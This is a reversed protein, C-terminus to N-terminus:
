SGQQKKYLLTVKGKEYVWVEKIEGKFNKDNLRSLISRRIYRHSAGKNNNIIIYQSQAAGHSIMNAIKRKKFPSVYGEYEYFVGDIRLDPSKGWYRTGKLQGYVEKYEESKPHLKPTLVATKGTKAFETAVTLIAKYDGAKKDISKHALVKGGNKFTKRVFFDKVEEIYEKAAKRIAEALDAAVGKTYPHENINLFEATKGPNNAFVPLPDNGGAPVPTVPKDTNRVSCECGWDSPPMHTNWWPHDIPLVTGVYALHEDRKEKATSELYELNPYLHATAQYRKFDAATRASRVAMNYETRLWNRNYDRDISTGLVSKKFEHFPRLNGEENFLMAAIDRGQHHAKFAAFIATNQKFEAIFAENKKGFEIGAKKFSKDVAKQLATNSIDFLSKNVAGDGRSRYIEELARAFLRDIDIGLEAKDALNIATRAISDIWSLRSKAGSRPTPAFAFFRDFLNLLWGRDDDSLKEEKKKKETEPEKKEEPQPQPFMPEPAQRKAIIDGESAQPIGFREQLYYAPIDIIDSLAILQEVTLNELAKPFVFSGGKVPYGRAELIPKLRKNLVRQVARLDHMNVEEEVEKHTESQSRSSGDITTMTQSLISILLQEDCTTIFDKYLTSNISGGGQETEVDTEKPVILTAAAGQSNFAEELQKRAEVDYISYKGIRKPMGFIEVMQAWDSFGGRKFIAYPCARLIIGLKDKRNRVEIMNPLDAYSITGESDNEQLAITRTDPRIHKRPVSYVEMGKEADFSLELVSVGWFYAQMIEQLLYEFEESDILDILEQIEEGQADQFSLNAGTVARIRKDIADSLVGDLLIDEYLNYLQTTKGRDASKLATRWKGVDVSQRNVPRVIVQNVVLQQQTKKAM